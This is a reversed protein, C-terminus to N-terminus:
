AEADQGLQSRFNGRAIYSTPLEPELDIAQEYDKAAADLQKLEAYVGARARLAGSSKPRLRLVETFDAIAADFRRDRTQIYGRNMILEASGKFRGILA